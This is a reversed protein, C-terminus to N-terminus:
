SRAYVFDIVNDFVDKKDELSSLNNCSLHARNCNFKLPPLQATSGSIATTAPGPAAVTDTDLAPATDTALADYM